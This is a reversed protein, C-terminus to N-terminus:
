MLYHIGEFRKLYVVNFGYCGFLSPKFFNEFEKIILILMIKILIKDEVYNTFILSFFSGDLIMM